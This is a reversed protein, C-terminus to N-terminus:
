HLPTLPGLIPALKNWRAVECGNKRSFSANVSRGDYSGKVTATEPGGFIMSCMQGHPTPAFPNGKAAATALSTCATAAHPHNGGTPDCRLTWVAPKASSSANYTVTLDAQLARPKPPTPTTLSPNPSPSSMPPRAVTAPPTKTPAATTTGSKCGTLVVAVAVVPLAILVKRAMHIRRERPVAPEM